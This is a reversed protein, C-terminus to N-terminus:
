LRSPVKRGRMTLLWGRPLLNTLCVSPRSARWESTNQTTYVMHYKQPAGNTSGITPGPMARKKKKEEAMECAKM